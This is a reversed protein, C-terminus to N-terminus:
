SHQKSSNKVDSTERYYLKCDKINKDYPSDVLYSQIINSKSTFRICTHKIPCELGKCLTIDPM